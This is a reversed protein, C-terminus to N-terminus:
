ARYLFSVMQGRTCLSNPSFTTASTGTTIGKALAWAVADAYWTGPRVDTFGSAGQSVDPSGAARYLFTVTQSRSVVMNPSFIGESTGNTIGKEVAWLVATYYYASPSVDSFPCSTTGPVPCGAARWLFTVAQGRTCVMRPSFTTESTGTTIGRSVAWKVADYYYADKAVDTFEMLFADQDDDDPEDKDGTDPIIPAASGPIKLSAGSSSIDVSGGSMDFATVETLEFSLNKGAATPLVDFTAVAAVGDSRLGSVGMWGCRAVGESYEANGMFTSGSLAAGATLSKCKLSAADFAIDFSGGCLSKGGSISVTVTIRSGDESLVAETSLQPQSAAMAAM